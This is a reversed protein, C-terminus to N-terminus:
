AAKKSGDNKPIELNSFASNILRVKDLLKVTEEVVYNESVQITLSLGPRLLPSKATITWQTNRKTM